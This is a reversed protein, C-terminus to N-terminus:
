PSRHHAYPDTSLVGTATLTHYLELAGVIREAVDDSRGGARVYARLDDVDAAHLDRLPDVCLPGLTPDFIVGGPTVHLANLARKEDASLAM